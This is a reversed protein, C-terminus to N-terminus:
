NESIAFYQGTFLGKVYFDTLASGVGKVMEKIVNKWVVGINGQRIVGPSPVLYSPVVGLTGM